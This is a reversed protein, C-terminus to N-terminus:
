RGHRPSVTVWPRPHPGPPRPQAARCATRRLRGTRSHKVAYGWSLTLLAILLVWGATFGGSVDRLRGLLPPAIVVAIQNVAMVLGISFGTSGPTAVIAIWPGYWGIGFFGLWVFLLVATVPHRGAPTVLALLGGAVALMSATVVTARSRSRDSLAALGIRGAAGAFQVAVLAAAAAAATMGAQEHLHLVTLLGIGSHVAVMCTGTVVAFRMPVERRDGRVGAQSGARNGEGASLPSSSNSLNSTTSWNPPSSAGAATLPSSVPLPSPPKSPVSRSSPSSPSSPSPVIPPVPLNSPSAPSRYVLMFAIAGSMAVAGGVFIAARWSAAAAILPLTAAAAVAGLPLGAQRIGMALGRRSDDFWSAVSKSGGPQITSYGAGVVLLVILLAPYGPALTGTLLAAGVLAAGIGVVWREDFRDLLVGAVLLGVLPALQAASVLLGLQAASIDLDDRLVVGLAGLGQVFFAATVQTFTAM